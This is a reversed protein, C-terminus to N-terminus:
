NGDIIRNPPVCHAVVLEANLRDNTAIRETAEKNGIGLAKMHRVRVREMAIDLDCRIFWLEDFWSIMDNWPKLNLLL